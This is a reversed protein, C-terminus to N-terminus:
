VIQDRAVQFVLQELGFPQFGDERRNEVAPLLAGLAATVM